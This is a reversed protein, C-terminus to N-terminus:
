SNWLRDPFLIDKVGKPLGESEDARNENRYACYLMIAEVVTPPVNDMDSGYGATFQIKVSQIERLTVAPWSCDYAHCIRGPTSESDVFFDSLSMVTETNMYDYCKVSEVSVLPAKPFSFPLEPFSDFSICFTRNIYSRGQYDEAQKVASRIWKLIIADEVDHDIHTHLKVTDVTIPEIPPPTITTLSYKIM